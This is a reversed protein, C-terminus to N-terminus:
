PSGPPSPHPHMKPFLRDSNRVEARSSGGSDNGRPPRWCRRAAEAKSGAVPDFRRFRGRENIRRTTFLVSDRRPFALSRGDPRSLPLSPSRMQFPRSLLFGPLSRWLKALLRRPLALFFGFFRPLPTRRIGVPWKVIKPSVRTGSSELPPGAHSPLFLIRQTFFIFCFFFFFFFSFFFFFFFAEQRPGVYECSRQDVTVRYLYFGAGEVLRVVRGRRRRRWGKEKSMRGRKNRKKTRKRRSKWGAWARRGCEEEGTGEDEEVRTAKRRRTKTRELPEQAGGEGGGERGGAREPPLRNNWPQSDGPTKAPRRAWPVIFISTGKERPRSARRRRGRHVLRFRAVEKGSFLRPAEEHCRDRSSRCGECNSLIALAEYTKKRPQSCAPFFCWRWVRAAGRRVGKVESVYRDAGAACSGPLNIRKPPVAGVVFTMSVSPWHLAPKFIFVQKRENGM